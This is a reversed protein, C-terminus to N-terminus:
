TSTESATMARHCLAVPVHVSYLMAAPPPPLVVDPVASGVPPLGPSTCKCVSAESSSEDSYPQIDAVRPSLVGDAADRVIVAMQNVLHRSEHVLRLVNDTSFSYTQASEVTPSIAKRMSAGGEGQSADVRQVSSYM